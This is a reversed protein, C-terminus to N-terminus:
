KWLKFGIYEESNRKVSYTKGVDHTHYFDGDVDEIKEIWVTGGHTSDPVVRYEYRMHYQTVSRRNQGWGDIGIDDWKDIIKVSYTRPDSKTEDCSSVSVTFAILAVILYFLKKM